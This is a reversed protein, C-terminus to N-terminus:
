QRRNIKIGALLVYDDLNEFIKLLDNYEEQKGNEKIYKNVEIFDIETGTELIKRYNNEIELFISQYYKKKVLESIQVKNLFTMKDINDNKALMEEEYVLCWYCFISEKIRSNKIPKLYIEIEKKDELIAKGKLVEFRYESIGNLGIQKDFFIEQIDINLVERLINVIQKSDTKLLTKLNELSNKEINIV